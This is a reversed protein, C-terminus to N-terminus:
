ERPLAVTDIFALVQAYTDAPIDHADHAPQCTGTPTCKLTKHMSWSNMSQLLTELTHMLLAGQVLYTTSLLQGCLYREKRTLYENLHMIRDIPLSLIRHTDIVLHFAIPSTKQMKVFRRMSVMLREYVDDSIVDHTMRVIVILVGNRETTFGRMPVDGDVNDFSFTQSAMVDM